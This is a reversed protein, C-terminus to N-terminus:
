AAHATSTAAKAHKAIADVILENKSSPFDHGMGPVLLLGAGPILRALAKSGRVPLLPDLTGHIVLTPTKISPLRAPRRGSSDLIAEFQRASAAVSPKAAVLQEALTHLREEDFTSGEGGLVRFVEVFHPLQEKPDRPPPTMILRFGRVSAFSYRRGGPTSMISTMSLLKDAHDLALTQAIMGGMSAGVVHFRDHGLSKMLAVCDAAMDELTYLPKVTLGLMSRLLQKKGDPVGLETLRTSAGTDRNDMRVVSFGRSAFTDSLADSWMARPMGFGAVLLLPPGSGRTDYAIEIKGLRAVGDTVQVTLNTARLAASTL